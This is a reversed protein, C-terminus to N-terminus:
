GAPAVRTGSLLWETGSFLQEAYWQSAVRPGSLHWELTASYYTASPRHATRVALSTM